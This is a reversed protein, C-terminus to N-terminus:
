VGTFYRGQKSLGWSIATSNFNIFDVNFPLRTNDQASINVIDKQKSTKFFLSHTNGKLTVQM